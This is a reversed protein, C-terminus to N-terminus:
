VSSVTTGLLLDARGTVGLWWVGFASLIFASSLLTDANGGATGLILFVVGLALFLARSRGPAGVRRMRWWLLGYLGLPVVTQLIGTVAMVISRNPISDLPIPPNATWGGLMMIFPAAMILLPLLIARKWDLAVISSLNLLMPSILGLALAIYQANLGGLFEVHNLAVILWSFGSVFFFVGLTLTAQNRSQSWRTFAYAGTGISLIAGVAIFTVSTMGAVDGVVPSVLLYSMFYLLSSITFSYAILEPGIRSRPLVLATILIAPGYLRLGLVATVISPDTFSTAVLITPYTLSLVALAFSTIRKTTVTLYAFLGFPISFLILAFINVAYDTFGGLVSGAGIQTEAFAIFGLVGMMTIPIAYLKKSGLIMLASIMLLGAGLIATIYWFVEALGIGTGYWYNSLSAAGLFFVSAVAVWLPRGLNKEEPPLDKVRNWTFRFLLITILFLGVATILESAYQVVLQM